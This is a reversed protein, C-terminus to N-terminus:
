GPPVRLASTSTWVIGAMAQKACVSKAAEGCARIASSRLDSLRPLSLSVMLVLGMWNPTVTDSEEPAGGGDTGIPWGGIM